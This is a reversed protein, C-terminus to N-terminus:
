FFYFDLLYDLVEVLWGIMWLTWAPRILNEPKNLKITILNQIFDLIGCVADFFSFGIFLGLSGGVSCIMGLNELKTLFRSVQCKSVWHWLTMVFKKVIDCVFFKKQRIWQSISYFIKMTPCFFCFKKGIKWFFTKLIKRGM